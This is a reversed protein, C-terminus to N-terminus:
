RSIGTSLLPLERSPVRGCGTVSIHDPFLRVVAFATSDKTECLGQLTLHHVGRRLAYGGAHDHGAIWAVVGGAQDMVALVAEPNAARHNGHVAEKLLPFHCFCVVREGGAVARLLVDKFWVLQPQSLMGYGADNGDLVVFRWGPCSPHTFDYYYKKFALTDNLLKRGAAADHNGLVYHWPLPIAQVAAAMTAVDKKALAAPKRGDTFDGLGIVFAPPPQRELLQRGMAALKAPASRFNRTGTMEKDAYQIDAVAAFEALPRSVAVAEQALGCRASLVAMVCVTLFRVVRAVM